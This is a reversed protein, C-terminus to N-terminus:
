VIIEERPKILSALSKFSFPFFFVGLFALSSLSVMPSLLVCLQKPMWKLLLAIMNELPIQLVCFMFMLFHCVCLFCLFITSVRSLFLLFPECLPFSFLCPALVFCCSLLSLFILSLLKPRTRKYYAANGCEDVLSQAEEDDEGKRLQHYRLHHHVM